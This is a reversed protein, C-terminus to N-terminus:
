GQIKHDKSEVVRMNLLGQIRPDQIWCEKSEIIKFEVIRPKLKWSHLLKKLLGATAPAIRCDGKDSM